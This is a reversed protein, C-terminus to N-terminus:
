PVNLTVELKESLRSFELLSAAKGSVPRQEGFESGVATFDIVSIETM